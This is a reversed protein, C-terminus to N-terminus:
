SKEDIIRLQRAPGAELMESECDPVLIIKGLHKLIDNLRETAEPLSGRPLVENETTCEHQFNGPMWTIPMCM